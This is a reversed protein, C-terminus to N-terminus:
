LCINVMCSNKIEKNQFYSENSECKNLSLSEFLKMSDLEFSICSLFPLIILFILPRQSSGLSNLISLLLLIIWLLWFDCFIWYANMAVSLVNNGIIM